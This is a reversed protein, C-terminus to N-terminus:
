GNLRAAGNKEAVRAAAPDSELTLDLPQPSLALLFQRANFFAGAAFAGPHSRKQALIRTAAEAVLPGTVAYIDQGSAVATRQTGGRQVVAQLTFRQASRGTEDVAVPAPTQANGLDAIPTQNIWGPVNRARLHSSITVADAVTLGIM